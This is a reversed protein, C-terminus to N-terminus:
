CRYLDNCAGINFVPQCSALDKQIFPVDVNSASFLESPAIIQHRAGIARLIAELKYYSAEAKKLDIADIAKQRLTAFTLRSEEIANLPDGSARFSCPPAHRFKELVLKAFYNPLAFSFNSADNLKGDSDDLKMEGFLVKHGRADEMTINIYYQGARSEVYYDMSTLGAGLRETLFVENFQEQPLGRVQLPSGNFFFIQVGQQESPNVPHQCDAFKFHALPVLPETSRDFAAMWPSSLDIAAPAKMDVGALMEAESIGTEFKACLKKLEADQKIRALLIPLQQSLSLVSPWSPYYRVSEPRNFHAFKGAGEAYLKTESDQIAPSREPPPVLHWSARIKEFREHTAALVKQYLQESVQQISQRGYDLAEILDKTYVENLKCVHEVLSKRASEVLYYLQNRVVDNPDYVFDVSQSLLSHAERLREIRHLNRLTMLHEEPLGEILILPNHIAEEDSSFTTTTCQTIWFRLDALWKKAQEPTAVEHEKMVRNILRDMRLTNDDVGIAVLAAKKLYSIRDLLASGASQGELLALRATLAQNEDVLNLYKSQIVRVAVQLPKLTPEERVIIQRETTAPAAEEPFVKRRHELREAKMTGLEQPVRPIRMPEVIPAKREAIEPPVVGLSLCEQRAVEVREKVLALQEQHGELRTIRDMLLVQHDGEAMYISQLSQMLAQMVELNKEREQAIMAYPAVGAQSSLAVQNTM